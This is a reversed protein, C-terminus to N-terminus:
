DQFAEGEIEFKLGVLSLIEKWLFRRQQFSVM